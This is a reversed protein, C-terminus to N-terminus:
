NSPGRQNLIPTSVTASAAKPSTVSPLGVITFRIECARCEYTSTAPITLRGRVSVVGPSACM